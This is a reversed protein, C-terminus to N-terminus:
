VGVVSNVFQVIINLALSCMDSHGANELWAIPRRCSRPTAAFIAESHWPHVVMDRTGHVTLVPVVSKELRDANPFMDWLVSRVRRRLPVALISAFPALLVVGVVRAPKLSALYCSPGSGLSYGILVIPVNPYAKGTYHYVDVINNYVAAESCQRVSTGPGYGSYDYCLVVCSTADAVMQMASGNTALDESNGHSFIVVAPPPVSITKPSYTAVAVPAGTERGPCHTLVGGAAAVAKAYEESSRPSPPLFVLKTIASGM